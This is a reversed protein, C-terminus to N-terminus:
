SAEDHNQADEISDCRPLIPEATVRGSRPDVHLNNDFPAHTSWSGSISLTKDGDDGTLDLEDERIRRLNKLRSGGEIPTASHKLSNSQRSSVKFFLPKLSPISGGIVGLDTELAVWIWLNYGEWSVDYTEYVVFHAYYTRMIGAICVFLGLAFLSILGIRQRTPLQTRYLVPMPLICVLFDTFRCRNTVGISHM